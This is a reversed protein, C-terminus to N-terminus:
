LVLFYCFIFVTLPRATLTSYPESKIKCFRFHFAIDPSVTYMLRTGNLESSIKGTLKQKGM